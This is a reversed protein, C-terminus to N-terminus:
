TWHQHQVSGVTTSVTPPPQRNAVRKQLQSAERAETHHSMLSTSVSAQTATHRASRHQSYKLDTEVAALVDSTGFARESWASESRWAGLNIFLLIRETMNGNLSHM